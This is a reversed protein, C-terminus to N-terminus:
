RVGGSAPLTRLFAVVERTEEETLASRFAPMRGSRNAFQAGDRIVRSLHEDSLGSTTAPDALLAPLVKQEPVSPGVNRGTVGHCSICNEFYLRQGRPFGEPSAKYRDYVSRAMEIDGREQELAALLLRATLTIETGIRRLAEAQVSTEEPVPAPTEGPRWAEFRELFRTLVGPADRVEVSPHLLVRDVSGDHMVVGVSLSLGGLDVRRFAAHLPPEGPRTLYPVAVPRDRRGEAHGAARAREEPLLAIRQRWAGTDELAPALRRLYTVVDWADAADLQAKWSPMLRSHETWHGGEMLTEHLEEDTRANMLWGDTLNAPKPRLVDAAPGDGRGYTGHCAACNVAFLREGNRVEGIRLAEPDEQLPLRDLFPEMPVGRGACSALLGLLPLCCLLLAGETRQTM